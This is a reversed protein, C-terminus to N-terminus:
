ISNSMNINVNGNSIYKNSNINTNYIIIIHYKLSCKIPIIGNIKNISVTNVIIIYM